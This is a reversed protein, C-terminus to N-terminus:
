TKVVKTARMKAKTARRRRGWPSKGEIELQVVLPRLIVLGGAIETGKIQAEITIKGDERAWFEFSCVNCKVAVKKGNLSLRLMAHTNQKELFLTWDKLTTRPSGDRERFLEDSIGTALTNAEKKGLIFEAYIERQRGVSLTVERQSFNFNANAIKADARSGGGARVARLPSGPLLRGSQEARKLKVKGHKRQVTKSSVNFADAIQDATDPDLTGDASQFRAAELAIARDGVKGKQTPRGQRGESDLKFIVRADGGTLTRRLSKEIEALCTNLHEETTFRVGERLENKVRFYAELVHRMTGIIIPGSDGGLLDRADIVKLKPPIRRARAM